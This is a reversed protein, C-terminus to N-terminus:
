GQRDLDVSHACKGGTERHEGQITPNRAPRSLLRRRASQRCQPGDIVVGVPDRVASQAAELERFLDPDSPDAVVAVVDIDSHSTWNSVAVSGVVYFGEIVGPAAEVHAALWVALSEVV